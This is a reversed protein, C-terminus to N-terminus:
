SAATFTPKGSIKVTINATIIDERDVENGFSKIYGSLAWKSTDVFTIRFNKDLRFLGYV